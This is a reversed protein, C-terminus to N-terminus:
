LRKRRRGRPGGKRPEADSGWMQAYFLLRMEEPDHGLPM